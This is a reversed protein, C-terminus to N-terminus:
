KVRRIRHIYYMAIGLVQNRADKKSTATVILKDRHDGIMVSVRYVKYVVRRHIFM